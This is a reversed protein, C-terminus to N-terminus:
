RLYDSFANSVPTGSSQGGRYQGYEAGHRDSQGAEDETNDIKEVYPRIDEELLSWLQNNLPVSTPYVSPAGIEM